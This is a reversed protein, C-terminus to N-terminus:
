MKPKSMMMTMADSVEKASLMGDKNADAKMFMAQSAADEENMSIMGDGNTDAMKIKAQVMMATKAPDSPMNMAAMDKMNMASLEDASLMGDGNTDTATFMAKCAAAREDMSIMGDGNTDMMKMSHEVMMKTKDMMSTQPSMQAFAPTVAAAGLLCVLALTNKM